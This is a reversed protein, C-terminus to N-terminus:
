LHIQDLSNDVPSNAIWQCKQKLHRTKGKVNVTHIDTQVAYCTIIKIVMRNQALLM